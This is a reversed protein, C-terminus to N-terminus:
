AADVAALTGPGAPASSMSSTILRDFDLLMIMQDSAPLIGRIYETAASSGLDPAPRLEAPDVNVVESVSDVVVGVARRDGRTHVSLVITVTTASFEVQKLGFHKRLDLIPVISGRLNMVGLVHRPAHPVQTVPSWVRIEQVQLIDVGYTEGGLVFTLVQQFGPSASSGSDNQMSM